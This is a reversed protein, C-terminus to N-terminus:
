GTVRSGRGEWASVAALAAVGYAVGLVVDTVYHHQLYVASLCMLLFFLVAPWRAWRLEALRFALIAAILPYAVHLSPYAGFVDVGRAYMEDFFRTGLLADFRQAAAAGPRVRHRVLPAGGRLRLVDRVGDRERHPVLARVHERARAPRALLAPVGHGPVRGRVRPVRVRVPSRPRGLPPHPLGREPDPRRGRVVRARLPVARRRACARRDGALLLVADFRLARGDLHVPLVAEPVPAVQPQVPRPLRAPGGARPRSAPWRPSGGGPRVCAGSRVALVSATSPM